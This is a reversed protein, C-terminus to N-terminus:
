STPAGYFRPVRAHPQLMVPAARGGGHRRRSATVSAAAASTPGAQAPSGRSHPAGPASCPTGYTLAIGFVGAHARQQGEGQVAQSTIGGGTRAVRPSVLRRSAAGWPQARIPVSIGPCPSIRQSPSLSDGLVHLDAPKEPSTSFPRSGRASVVSSFTPPGIRRASAFLSLMKNFAGDWCQFGRIPRRSGSFDGFCWTLSRHLHAAPAKDKHHCNRCRGAGGGVRCDTRSSRV